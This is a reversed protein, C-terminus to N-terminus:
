CHEFSFGLETVQWGDRQSLLIRCNRHLGIRERGGDKRSLGRSMSGTQACLAGLRDRQFEDSPRMCDSHWRSPVIPMGARIKRLAPNDNRRRRYTSSGKRCRSSATRIRESYSPARDTGTLTRTPADREMLAATLARERDARRCEGDNMDAVCLENSVCVRTGFLPRRTRLRM